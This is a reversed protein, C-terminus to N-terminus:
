KKKFHKWAAYGVIIVVVGLVAKNLGSMNTFWNGTTAPAAAAGSPSSPASSPPTADATGDAKVDAGRRAEVYQLNSVTGDAMAKKEPKKEVYIM